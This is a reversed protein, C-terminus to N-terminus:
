RLLQSLTRDIAPGNLNKAVISGERDLLYNFPVSQINYRMVAEISGKMDGVNTWTLKDKEIAELWLARDKDVSVQYIELGKSRYKQYIEVLVPNIIRSNQDVASWFQLLVYKGRFSTLPIDRGQPDPLLIEPSNEGQDAILQRVKGARETELLQLTNAYLAKVHESEPYFSNLASAAVRLAHLDRVVYDDDNFKQYLALVSAMSFPHESVFQTSYDIQEQVITDYAKKWGAKLAEFDPSEAYLTYLSSISDLKQKTTNLRYNLEQVLLSGPSGAVKYDRALSIADAEVTVKEASDLLLTIFNNDALRLLFFTPMGVEHKITFEGSASVRASDVPRVSAVMLEELYVMKGSANTIKGRVEIKEPRSCGALVFLIVPIVIITFRRM